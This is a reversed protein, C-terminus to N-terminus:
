RVAAVRKGKTRTGKNKSDYLVRGEKSAYRAVTGPIEKDREYERRTLLMIDFAYDIGALARSMEVMTKFRDKKVPGIVLLDIDSRRDATGRAQSGFLVIREPRYRDVLTEAAEKFISQKTM